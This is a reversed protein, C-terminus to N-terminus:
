VTVIAWRRGGADGGAWSLTHSQLAEEEWVIKTFLINYVQFVLDININGIM